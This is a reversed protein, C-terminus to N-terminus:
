CQSELIHTILLVDKIYDTESQPHV